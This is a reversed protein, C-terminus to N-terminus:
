LCWMCMWRVTLSKSVQLWGTCPIQGLKARESGIWAWTENVQWRSNECPLTKAQLWKKECSSCVCLAAPQSGTQRSHPIWSPVECWLYAFVPPTNLPESEHCLLCVPLSHFLGPSSPSKASQHQSPWQTVPPMESRKTRKDGGQFSTTDYIVSYCENVSSAWQTHQSHAANHPYFYIYSSSSYSSGDKEQSQWPREKSWPRGCPKVNVTKTQQYDLCM